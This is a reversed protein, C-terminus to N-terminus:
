GNSLNLDSCTCRRQKTTGVKQRAEGVSSRRPLNFELSNLFETAKRADLIDIKSSGVKYDFDDASESTVKHKKSHSTKDNQSKKSTQSKKTSENELEKEPDWIKLFNKLVAQDSLQLKSTGSEGVGRFREMGNKIAVIVPLGEVGTHALTKKDGLLAVSVKRSLKIGYSSIKNEAVNFEDVNPEQWNKLRDISPVSIFVINIGYMRLMDVNKSFERLFKDCHPCWEGFFVVITKVLDDVSIDRKTLKKGEQYYVSASFETGQRSYYELFQNDEKDQTTHASEVLPTVGGQTNSSMKNLDLSSKSSVVPANLAGRSQPTANQTITGIRATQNVSRQQASVDSMIISFVVSFM